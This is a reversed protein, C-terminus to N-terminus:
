DNTQTDKVVAIIEDDDVILANGDANVRAGGDDYTAEITAELQILVGDGEHYDAM